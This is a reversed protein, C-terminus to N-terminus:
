RQRSGSRPATPARSALVRGPSGPQKLAQVVIAAFRAAAPSLARGRVTVLGIRRIFSLGEVRIRVLDTMADLMPAPLVSVGMGARVLAILTNLNNAEFVPRFSQQERAHLDSLTTRIASPLPMSVFPLRSFEEFRLARNAPLAMSRPAAVVLEDTFLHECELDTDRGDFPVLALDISGAVLRELISGTFDDHLRMTVGPYASMFHGLLPPLVTSALTPSAGLVVRGFKLQAQDRLERVISTLESVAHGGRTRLQAGAETLSVQRTTRNFLQHGLLQELRQVRLTVSSQSLGLRDAARRFGGSEAVAIFAELDGPAIANLM